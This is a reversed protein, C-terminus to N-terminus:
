RIYGAKRARLGLKWRVSKGTRTTGGGKAMPRAENDGHNTRRMKVNRVLPKLDADTVYTRDRLTAGRAKRERERMLRNFMADFNVPKGKM